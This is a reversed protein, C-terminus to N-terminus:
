PTSDAGPDDTRDNAQRRSPSREGGGRWDLPKAGVAGPIRRTPLPPAEGMDLMLHWYNWSRADFVGPRAKRLAERLDDDTFHSQVVKLDAVTGWTMAHNLFLIPDELTRGPPQFWVIRRAVEGLDAPFGNM